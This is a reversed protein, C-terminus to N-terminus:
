KIFTITFPYVFKEGNNTKVAAIITLVLDAVIIPFILLFGIFVFCLVFAGIGYISMSIQFNLASKGEEDVLPMENRKILWLILPGLINGFPVGIFATLASLHCFMAWLREQKPDNKAEQPQVPQKENETM